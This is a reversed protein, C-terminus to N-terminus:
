PQHEHLRLRRQDHLQGMKIGNPFRPREILGVEAQKCLEIVAECMGIDMLSIHCESRSLGTM